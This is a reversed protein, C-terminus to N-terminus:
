DPATRAGTAAHAHALQNTHIGLWLSPLASAKPPGARSQVRSGSRLVQFSYQSQDLVAHSLLLGSCVSSGVFGRRSAQRGSCAPETRLNQLDRMRVQLSAFRMVKIDKLKTETKRHHEIIERLQRWHNVLGSASNHFDAKASELERELKENKTHLRANEARNCCNHRRQRTCCM